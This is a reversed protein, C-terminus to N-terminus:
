DHTTTDGARARLFNDRQKFFADTYDSPEYGNLKIIQDTEKNLSLVYPLQLSDNFVCDAYLFIINKNGANYFDFIRGLGIDWLLADKNFRKDEALIFLNKAPRKVVGMTAAVRYMSATTEAGTWYSKEKFGQLYNYDSVFMNCVFLVLLVSKATEYRTQIQTYAILIILIFTCFPAQLWRQELRITSVAPVLCLFGLLFLWVIIYLSSLDSKNGSKYAKNMRIAYLIIVLALFEVIFMVIIQHIVHIKTYDLGAWGQEGSNLQIISLVADQLFGVSRDMSFVMPQNSTGMFFAYHCVNVKLFYNIYLSFVALLCIIMRKKITLKYRVPHLLAILLIAPLLVVYREHVYMGINAFVIAYLLYKYNDRADRAKNLFYRMLFYVMLLFVLLALGELSGGNLLQIINYYSFRSLGVLLSLFFSLFKSDIFLNLILAFVCSIFTQIFVNFVFYGHLDKGFLM